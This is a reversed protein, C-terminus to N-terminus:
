LLKKLIILQLKSQADATMSNLYRLFQPNSLSDTFFLKSNIAPINSLAFVEVLVFWCVGEVGRGGGRFSMASHSVLLM